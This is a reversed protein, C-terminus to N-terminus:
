LLKELQSLLIATQFDYETDIDLAEMFSDVILPLTQTGIFTRNKRLEKPSILYFCGNLAFYKSLENLEVNKFLAQKAPTLHGNQLEFIIKPDFRIPSVGVVSQLGSTKFLSIGKLITEITRFPSTPQLLLIGDISGNKSEYWDLAHITVDVSSAQDTALEKPRLWPVEAGAAKATKAIRKDDTSVLTDCIEEIALASTISWNILPKGGLLRLNKKPIRKSGGRAPIIALIKM